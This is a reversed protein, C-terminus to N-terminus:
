LLVPDELETPDEAAAAEAAEIEALRAAVAADYAARRKRPYHLFELWVEFSLVTLLGVELLLNMVPLSNTARVSGQPVQTSKFVKVNNYNVLSFKTSDYDLDLTYQNLLSLGFRWEDM